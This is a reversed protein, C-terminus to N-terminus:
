LIVDMHIYNNDIAYAYNTENQDLVYHLVLEAPIGRICFDMATGFKHRSGSVGGVLSNHIECRVGSSVIAASGFHERVRDALRVLKEAPEIPFGNCYKGGCKCRFEERKFHKIENWFGEKPADEAEEKPVPKIEGIIAKLISEETLDGFEGDAKLGYAKQFYATANASEPGWLGDIRGTYFGLYALLCQKQFITM